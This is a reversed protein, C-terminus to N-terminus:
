KLEVMGVPAMMPPPSSLLVGPMTWRLRSLPLPYLASGFPLWGADPGAESVESDTPRSPQTSGLRGRQRQRTESGSSTHTASAPASASSRGGSEGGGGGGGGRAKGGDGGGEM